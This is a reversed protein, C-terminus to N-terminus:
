LYSLIQGFNRKLFMLMGLILVGYFFRVWRRYVFDRNMEDIVIYGYCSDVYEFVDMGVLLFSSRQIKM